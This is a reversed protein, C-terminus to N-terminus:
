KEQFKRELEDYYADNLKRVANLIEDRRGEFEALEKKYKEKMEQKAKQYNNHINKKTFRKCVDDIVIEKVRELNDFAKFEDVTIYDKLGYPRVIYKVIREKQTYHLIIEDIIAKVIMNGHIFYINDGQQFKTDLM